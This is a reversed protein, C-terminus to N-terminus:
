LVRCFARCKEAGCLLSCDQPHLHKPQEIQLSIGLLHDFTAIFDGRESESHHPGRPQAGERGGISVGIDLDAPAECAHWELSCSM